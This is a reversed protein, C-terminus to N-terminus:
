LITIKMDILMYEWQGYYDIALYWARSQWEQDTGKLM